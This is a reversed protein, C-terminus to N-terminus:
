EVSREHRFIISNSLLYTWVITTAIAFLKAIDPSMDAAHVYLGIFVNIAVFNVGALALYGVLQHHTKFQQRGRFTWNKHLIFGSIVGLLFSISNAVYLSKPLEAILVLFSIYEIAESITGSVLYRLERRENITHFPHKILQAIDIRM